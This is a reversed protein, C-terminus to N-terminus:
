IKIKEISLLLKVLIKMIRSPHTSVFKRSIKPSIKQVAFLIIIQANFGGRWMLEKLRAQQVVGERVLAHYYAGKQCQLVPYVAKAKRPILIDNRPTYSAVLVDNLSKTHGLVGECCFTRDNIHAKEDHFIRTAFCVWNTPSCRWSTWTSGRNAVQCSSVRHRRNEEPCYYNWLVAGFFQVASTSGSSQECMKCPCSIFLEYESEINTPVQSLVVYYPVGYSDRDSYIDAYYCFIHSIEALSSQKRTNSSVFM